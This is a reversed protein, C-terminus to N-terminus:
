FLNYRMGLFVRRGQLSAYNYSTDFTYGNPNNVPDNVNKNFPDFPRMLAYKPVFDFLNKLGCYIELGYDMKKTLQLNAICFWPSYEPRYDNPLIPLRM